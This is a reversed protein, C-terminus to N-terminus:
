RMKEGPRSMQTKQKRGYVVPLISKGLWSSERRVRLLIKVSIKTKLRKKYDYILASEIYEARGQM